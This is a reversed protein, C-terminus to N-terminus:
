CPVESQEGADALVLKMYSEGSIHIEAVRKKGLENMHDNVLHAAGRGSESGLLAAFSDAKSGPLFVSWELEGVKRATGDGNEKAWQMIDRTEDNVVFNHYVYKLDGPVANPLKTTWQIFAAESWNIRGAKDEHDMDEVIIAGVKKKGNYSYGTNYKTESKKDEVIIRLWEGADFNIGDIQMTVALGKQTRYKPDSQVTDFDNELQKKAADSGGAIGTYSSQGTLINQENQAILAKGKKVADKWTLKEGNDRSGLPRKPAALKRSPVTSVSVTPAAIRSGVVYSTGNLASADIKRSPVTSVSATPAAIRSGVVYSTGNLAHFVRHSPRLRRITKESLSM